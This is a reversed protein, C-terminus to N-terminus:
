KLILTGNDLMNYGLKNMEKDCLSETFYFNYILDTFDNSNMKGKVMNIIKEITVIEEELEISGFLNRVTDKSADKVLNNINEETLFYLKDSNINSFINNLHLATIYKERSIPYNKITTYEKYKLRFAQVIYSAYNFQKKDSMLKDLLDKHLSKKINISSGDCTYKTSAIQLFKFLPLTLTFPISGLYIQSTVTWRGNKDMVYIISENPYNDKDINELREVKSDVLEFVTNTKKTSVLFDDKHRNCYNEIELKSKVKNSVISNIVFREKEKCIKIIENLESPKNFTEYLLKGLFRVGGDCLVVFGDYLGNSKQKYVMARTGM